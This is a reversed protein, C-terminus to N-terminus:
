AGFPRVDQKQNAVVQIAVDTTIPVVLHFRRVDIRQGCASDAEGIRM